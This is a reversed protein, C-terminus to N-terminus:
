LNEETEQASVEVLLQRNKVQDGESVSVTSVIGDIGSKLQHEMKMAEMVAVLQGESVSDGESVLVKVIGGDMPATVLGSGAGQSVAPPLNTTNIFLRNGTGANLYLQKASQTFLVTTRIGELQFTFYNSKLEISELVMRGLVTSEKEEIASIEITRAHRNEADIVLSASYQTEDATIKITIPLNGGTRWASTHLTQLSDLRCILAAAIVLERLEPETSILSPDESFHEEIFATTADGEAFVPHQCINALFQQNTTVGQIETQKLAALLKRRAQNRNAGHVIIKAIMPDYHPSIQQGEVIGHDVRADVNGPLKWRLVQGTQPLFENAPDEAYLRAEMAHGNICVEEQKLPLLEGQAINIQWEVLDLGTIMETVPHEVQLRTNMELFYFKGSQDLLFEVTGAGVYNCSKAAEVAAQGMQKRLPEDVAPSPAEEIVKQHRRQISCDREGLYLTNGQQDAIIQIEVHRPQIVAKELIMEDSGFTKKAESRASELAQGLDDGEHVLRMGRGGGGAAAKVMVPFGIKKAEAILVEDTQDEGQYGPICPVQAEIMRIKAARKNGMLNIAEPGPGIFTVGNEECCRAFDTNESLFGYGPHVADAGSLTIAQIIKESNLYSEGVPAGGICIAEDAERVHLAGADAESYVAVTQYGLKRATKIVRVAIEGRNAILIKNFLKM